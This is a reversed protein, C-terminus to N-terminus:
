GGDHPHAVLGLRKLAPETGPFESAITMLAYVGSNLGSM